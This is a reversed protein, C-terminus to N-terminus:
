YGRNFRVVHDPEAVGNAWCEEVIGAFSASIGDAHQSLDIHRLVSVGPIETVVDDESLGTTMSDYVVESLWQESM